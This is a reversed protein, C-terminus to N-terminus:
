GIVSVDKIWSEVASHWPQYIWQDWFAAGDSAALPSSDGALAGSGLSDSVDWSASPDLDLASVFAETAGGDPDIGVLPDILEFIWDLEDAQATPASVVPTMGFALFAAVSGAVGVARERRRVGARGSRRNGKVSRHRGSM